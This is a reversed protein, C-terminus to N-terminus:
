GKRMSYVVIKYLEARSPASNLDKRESIVGAKVLIDEFKKGWHKKMGKQAKADSKRNQALELELHPLDKYGTRRYLSTLGCEEAIDYVENWVRMDKPYLEEGKFAIDVANGTMHNSQLTQTVQKKEPHGEIEPHDYGLVSVEFTPTLHRGFSWLYLQRAKDRWGESIFVEFGREECKQLFREVKEKMEPTLKSLDRSAATVTTM